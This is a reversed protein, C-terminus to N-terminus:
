FLTISFAFLFVTAFFIAINTKSVERVDEFYM